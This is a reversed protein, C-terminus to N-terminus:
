FAIYPLNFGHGFFLNLTEGMNLKGPIKKKKLSVKHFCFKDVM